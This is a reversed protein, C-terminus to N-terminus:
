PPDGACPSRGSRSRPRRPGGRPREYTRHRRARTELRFKPGATSRFMHAARARRPQRPDCPRATLANTDLPITGAIRTGHGPRSEVILTGGVAVLRDHINTLGHGLDEHEVDFGRGDDRVDFRLDRGDSVVISVSTAGAHKAANQLVELCCFYVAAELQEPFRGIGEPPPPRSRRPGAPSRGCRSKSAPSSWCRRICAPPWRGYTTWRTVWRRASSTCSSPMPCTSRWRGSAPSNSSSGCRWSVSHQAGDHLDREIRRREEDAAAVIRERSRHVERLSGEVQAALRQNTLVLVTLGGVARLLDEHDRLADDHLIAAAESYADSIVTCARGPDAGPLTAPGQSDLWGGDSGRYVLDLSPDDLADALARRLTEHDTSAQLGPALRYLASGVALRWRAAGVLFGVAMIPIGASLVWLM